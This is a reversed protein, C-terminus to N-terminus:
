FYGRVFEALQEPPNVIIENKLLKQFYYDDTRHHNVMNQRNVLRMVCRFEPSSRHTPGSFVAFNFTSFKMDHYARLVRCLGDALHTFDDETWELLHTANFWVADIENVGLPSFAALWELDGTRAICRNKLARESEVLDIWYCSGKDEYYALSKELLLRQHTAPFPSGIIQFHPHIVSAGAPLLFNANLTFYRITSDSEYCRRFFEVSSCFADRVLSPTFENLLRLHSEGLMVVAHYAALPFLNPFLVTEGKVLRGGPLLADSYRPTTSNWRGDCMFCQARTEEARRSLYDYDTEPFLISTKGELASSYMSQHGTLPDLRVEIDQTDLIGGKLPNHFRAKQHWREFHIVAMEAGRKLVGAEDRRGPRSDHEESRSDLGCGDAM